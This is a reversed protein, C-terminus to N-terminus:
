YSLQTWSKAVGHITSWWAGRDMPNGLCSYQLPNSLFLSSSEFVLCLSRGVRVSWWVFCIYTLSCADWGLILVSSCLFAQLKHWVLNVEQILFLCATWELITVCSAGSSVKEWPCVLDIAVYLFNKESPFGSSSHCSHMLHVLFVGCWFHYSFPFDRTTWHNNSQVGMTPRVPKIEPWPVLIRCAAHHSWFILLYIFIKLITFSSLIM